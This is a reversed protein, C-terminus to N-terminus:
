EPFQVGFGVMVQVVRDLGDPYIDRQLVPVAALLHFYGYTGLRLEMGANVNLSFGSSGDVPALKGDVLIRDDNLRFAPVLSLTYQAKPRDFDKRIRVLLDDGCWLGPSDPFENVDESNDWAVKTFQNNNGGVPRQYGLSLNWSRFYFISSLMFSAAGQSPQYVM